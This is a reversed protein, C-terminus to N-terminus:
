EDLDDMRRDLYEKLQDLYVTRNKKRLRINQTFVGYYNGLDIHFAIQLVEVVQKVDAKGYDVSGKAQIAYALEILTAKSDTWINRNSKVEPLANCLETNSLSLMGSKLYNIFLEYAQIKSLKFSYFTTFKPDMELSYDPLPEDAYPERLFYQEDLNTRGMRYYNYFEQNREFFIRIREMAQKYFTTQVEMDGVPKGAEFFFVENHFILEKLFMPKIEKFFKIEEANDAFSYNLIFAKIKKLSEQTAHYSREARQLTNDSEFAIARLHENLQAYQISTFQVM